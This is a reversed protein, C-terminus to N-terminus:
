IGKVRGYGICVSKFPLLLHYKSCRCDERGAWLGRAGEPYSPVQDLKTSVKLLAVDIDTGVSFELNVVGVSDGSESTLKTLGEVSKLYEEQQETIEREVEQPSAGPWRTTVTIQPRTVDPTLQITIRLLSLIGFLVVFFVGVIVSVPNKISADVLKM